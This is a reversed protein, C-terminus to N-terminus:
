IVETFIMIRQSYTKTKSEFKGTCSILNLGHKNENATKFMKNMDVKDVDTVEKRVVKYDVTSGDGREITVVDGAQLKNLDYFVGNQTAGSVHGDIISAGLGIGPKSSNKYWGTDHIKSPTQMEGEKNIGVHLVRARVNISPIIIYRPMDPAVKYSNLEDDTPKQEDETLAPQASVTTSLEQDLKFSHLSTIIGGVFVVLAMGVLLASVARQKGVKPVHLRSRSKKHEDRWALANAEFNFKNKYNSVDQASQNRKPIQSQEVTAKVPKIQLPNVTLSPQPETQQVRNPSFRREAPISITGDRFRPTVASVPRSRYPKMRQALVSADLQLRQKKM